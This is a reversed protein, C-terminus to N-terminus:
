TPRSRTSAMNHEPRDEALEGGMMAIEKVKPAISPKRVLAEAINTL